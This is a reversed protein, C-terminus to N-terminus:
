PAREVVRPPPFPVIRDGGVWRVVAPDLRDFYEQLLTEIETRVMRTAGLRALFEATVRPGYRHLRAVKRQFAPDALGTTTDIRREAVDIGARVATDGAAPGIRKHPGSM